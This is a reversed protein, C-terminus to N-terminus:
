LNATSTQEATTLVFPYFSNLNPHRSPRSSSKSVRRDTGM